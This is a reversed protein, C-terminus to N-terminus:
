VLVLMTGGNVNIVERYENRYTYKIYSDVYKRFVEKDVTDWFTTNCAYTVAEDFIAEPVNIEKFNCMIDIYDVNDEPSYITLLYDYLAKINSISYCDSYESTIFWEIFDQKSTNAYTDM